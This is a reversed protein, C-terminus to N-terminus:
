ALAAAGGARANRYWQATAALAQEPTEPPTWGPLVGDVTLSGLLRDVAAGKGLLTGAMRLWAPPVAILRAPRDLAAAVARILDPTSLDRRDSPLYTGPPAALAWAVADALNGLAILSRRNAVAGFPLPIGRDVIRLLSRFNGRVRPGYVLPPRLIVTEMRGLAIGHLTKEAEWKSIGYPDAPSPEDTATYPRAQGEGMAKVSSLFVFRKVGARIAATALQATADRNIRRFAALPNASKDRMVHVRAALHIVAEVGDLHPMWDVPQGLDGIEARGIPRLDLGTSALRICVARGVFG